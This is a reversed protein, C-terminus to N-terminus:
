RKNLKIRLNREKVLALLKKSLKNANEINDLEIEEKLKLYNSEIENELEYLAECSVPDSYKIEDSLKNIEKKLLDDEVLEVLLSINISLNNMFATNDKTEQEIHEITERYADLVLLGILVLSIVLVNLIILVWYPIVMFLGLIFAITTIIIQVIFYIYGIKLIPWGYIKSKLGENKFAYYAIVPQSVICLLGFSYTLWFSIEDKPTVPILFVLLNYFITIIITIVLYKKFIKKM